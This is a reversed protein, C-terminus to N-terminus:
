NFFGFFYNEFKSFISLNVSVADPDKLKLERKKPIHVPKEPDAMLREIRNKQLGTAGGVKKEKLIESKEQAKKSKKWENKIEYGSFSPM